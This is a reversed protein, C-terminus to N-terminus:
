TSYSTKLNNVLEEITKRLQQQEDFLKQREIHHEEDKRRVLDKIANRIQQQVKLVRYMHSGVHNLFANQTELQRGVWQTRSLKRLQVNQQVPITEDGMGFVFKSPLKDLSRIYKLNSVSTDNAFQHDKPSPLACDRVKSLEDVRVLWKPHRSKDFVKHASKPMDVSVNTTTSVPRVVGTDFASDDNHPYLLPPM